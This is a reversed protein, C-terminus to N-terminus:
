QAPYEDDEVEDGATPEDDEAEVEPLEGIRPAPASWRTGKGGGHKTAGIQTLARVLTGRSCHLIQVLYEAPVPATCQSLLKRLEDAIATRVKSPHRPREIRAKRVGGGNPVVRAPEPTAPMEGDLGVGLARLADRCRDIESQAKARAKLAADMNSKEAIIKTLDKASVQTIDVLVTMRGENEATPPSCPLKTCRPRTVGM